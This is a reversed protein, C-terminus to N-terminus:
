EEEKGNREKELEARVREEVLQGIGNVLLEIASAVMGLGSPGTKPQQIREHMGKDTENPKPTTSSPWGEKSREQGEPQKTDQEKSDKKVAYYAAMHVCAVRADCTCVVILKDPSDDDRISVTYPPRESDTFSQVHASHTSVIKVHSRFDPHEHELAPIKGELKARTTTMAM